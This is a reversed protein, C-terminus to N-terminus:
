LPDLEENRALIKKELYKFYDEKLDLDQQLKSVWNQIALLASKFQNIREGM